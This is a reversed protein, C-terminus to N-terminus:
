RDCGLPPAPLSAPGLRARSRRASRPSARSPTRAVVTSTIRRRADAAVGAPTSSPGLRDPPEPGLESGSGHGVRPGTLQDRRDLRDPRTPTRPAPRGTSTSRRVRRRDRRTRATGRTTSSAPRASGPADGNHDHGGWGGPPRGPWRPLGLRRRTRGLRSRAGFAARLLGFFLFLIFLGFLFGFIGFGGGHWGWGPGYGYGYGYGPVARSSRPSSRARPRPPPPRPSRRRSAPRTPSAPSSAGASSCRRSSWSARHLVSAHRTGGQHNM